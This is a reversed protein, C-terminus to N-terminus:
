SRGLRKLLGNIEIIPAVRGNGLITAGAIGETQGIFSGLPKIVMEQNGILEDVAIATRKDGRGIIVLPIHRRSPEPPSEGFLGHPWIVPIMKSRIQLVPTGKVKRISDPEMRVIEAVHNMPIIYIQRGIKVLLGTGIALTLPLRIFFVTGKGSESEVDILGNVKEICARVIDMGVGRGSIDSVAAATSLGPHFILEKAEKDTYAAAAENTLVGRSVAKQVLRACDIGAGDDEVKILVHNDEHYAGILLRGKPPKGAERRREPTEIGHDLANRILHILPDGLEEILTRDLETDAGELVLEAEKGLNRTLDRVMRPFRSFLNEIPLMRVKMVHEQLEGVLRSLRDGIHSLDQFAPRSSMERAMDKTVQNLRTQEIVLEGALNMLNELRDVNVRITTQPSRGKKSAEDQERLASPSSANERPAPEPLATGEPEESEERRIYREVKVESVDTWSRIERALEGSEMRAAILYVAEVASGASMKIVDQLKAQGDPLLVALGALKQELVLLRAQPMDCNEALAVQVRFLEEDEAPQYEQKGTGPLAERVKFLPQATKEEEAGGYEKLRELLDSIEAKEADASAEQLLLRFRDVCVFLLTALKETVPFTGARVKELVHEMNHTLLNTRTFGMAGSSGKLTHVARFLRLVAEGSEGQELRLLEQEMIHLMEEAEMIFIARYEEM